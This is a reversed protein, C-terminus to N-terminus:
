SHDHACCPDPNSRYRAVVPWDAPALDFGVLENPRVWHLAVHELAAPAASGAATVARTYDHLFPDLTRTIIATCGLEETLERLLAAAPAEGPEVKGGPFEWKLGLHKNAPRQAILIRGTGDELVACVVRIPAKSDASASSPPTGVSCVSYVSAPPRFACLGGVM